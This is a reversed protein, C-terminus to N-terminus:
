SRSVDLESRNDLSHRATDAGMEHLRPPALENEASMEGMPTYKTEAPMEGRVENEASMEGMPTYKTETSPDHAAQQQDRNRKQRRLLFWALALIACLAAIGGVVGGAIAGANTGGGHKTGATPSAAASSTTKTSANAFIRALASDSFTPTAPNAQYYQKVAGSQEYPMAHSDYGSSWALATMDFIGIGKTWPDPTSGGSDPKHDSDLLHGGISIM